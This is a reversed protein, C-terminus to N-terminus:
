ISKGYNKKQTNKEKRKLFVELKKINVKKPKYSM